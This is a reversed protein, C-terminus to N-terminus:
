KKVLPCESESLPQFAKSGPITQLIKYYDWPGKSEQPTKVQALFMNHEMVGDPRIHGNKTFFDNIPVARMKAMVADSDKTDTAKVAKLYHMVASYTGAHVMTPMTGHRKYFRDSWAKAEPTRDWYFATTLLLGQANELGLSHIDTIFVLLAAIKQKKTIGFEKAQKVSNSMDTGSNALGIVQAGSAQATLLVSSYDTSNLPALAHGLVKGGMENVVRTANAELNQGFAYDATIFYWNKGGEKVMAAATGASLAYADFTWHVGWPSCNKNTLATTATDTVLDIKHKERSLDQVAIAVASNTLDVILDVGEQDYWKRAINAAVDTKNQHDAFVVEIPKGLIKGGFDEVAMKTAEVSGQGALDAYAGSMDTLVGIKVTSEAGLAGGAAMTGFVAAVALVKNFQKM